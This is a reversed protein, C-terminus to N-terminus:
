VFRPLSDLAQQSTDDIISNVEQIVMQLKM